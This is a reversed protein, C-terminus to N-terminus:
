ARVPEVTRLPAPRVKAPARSGQRDWDPGRREPPALVLRALAPGPEVGLERRVLGRYADYIRRAEVLNGAGLHAEILARQASERLPEVGIATM